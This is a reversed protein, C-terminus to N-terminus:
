HSSTLQPAESLAEQLGRMLDAFMYPKRLFRVPREGSIASDAIKQDYASTLIVKADPKIVRIQRLVERGSIGPLTLDLLVVGIDEAHARFIEVAGCGDCALLVSFGGKRLARSTALRLTEEDEVFLVTGSVVSLEGATIACVPSAIEHCGEACPLLVEFTTGKGPTSMVSIAGDHSHVIGHVVALGLGHGGPKTTFFPDFIKARQQETMGCGTDSIELRVYDDHSDPADNPASDQGGAARSTKVNIVGDKEGIAQSANIVLNMVLQRIQTANGHVAPLHKGLDIHLATHKSISVKLLELMEEVLGSLDLAELKAKEQGSYIMLERVVESARIAVVKIQQVEEGPSSGEALNNEALEAEALISGMLNNFDHAIGRTLASLSELKERALAEEQVRKLDTIDIASGIYGAFVGEPAFRPVGNDLVWRYEGDARRLRYEIQFNRRADFSSSYTAFCRQLDDPHVRETWGEGLEQEMTRGTFVLRNKNFFTYRKDPGSVWIMVPATDAMNRFREESERLAAEIEKPRTIDAVMGIFRTLRGCDFLARINSHLYAIRGDSGIVRHESECTDNGSTLGLIRQRLNERDEPHVRQFFAAATEKTADEDVKLIDACNYSRRVDDTATNWEFAYTRGAQMSLRTLEASELLAQEARKREAVELQLREVAVRLEATRQSVLKELEARLQGLELHTRVRALLEERQFPKMVFDVAGLRFGEVQEEIEGSASIFILPIDRTEDRQKLRRCVEFGDLGPMRVDLLILEPRNREISALALAGGDALRVGYGEARLIATLLTRSESEDDVVLITTM